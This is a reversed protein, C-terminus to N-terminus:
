GVKRIPNGYGDWKFSKTPPSRTVTENEVKVILLEPRAIIMAMRGREGYDVVEFKGDKQVLPFIITFPYNPYYVVENNKVMGVADGFAYYGYFPIVNANTSEEIEKIIQPTVGVGGTFITELNETKRSFLQLFQPITRVTNINDKEIVKQTYKVLPVLRGKLLSEWGEKELARKIGETEMGIIYLLGGYSWVLESTEEQYWGYPGHALARMQHKENYIKDLGYIEDLATRLFKVLLKMYEYDWHTIARERTTGSSQYFRVRGKYNKPSFDLWNERLHDENVFLGANFINEFVRKLNGQFIEDLDIQGKFKKWYPTNEFHYEFIKMLHEKTKEESVKLPDEYESIVDKYLMAGMVLYLRYFIIFTNNNRPFKGM